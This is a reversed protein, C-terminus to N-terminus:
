GAEYWSRYRVTSGRPVRTGAKPSQRYACGIPAADADVPGHVATTKPKLGAARLTRDIDGFCKDNLDPVVVSPAAAPSQARTPPASMLAIAAGLLLTATM